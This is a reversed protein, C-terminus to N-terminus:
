PHGLRASALQAMGCMILGNPLALHGVWDVAARRILPTHIGGLQSPIRLSWISM